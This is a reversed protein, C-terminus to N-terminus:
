LDEVENVEVENVEVEDVKMNQRKEFAEEDRAIAEMAAQAIADKAAAIRAGAAKKKAPTKARNWEREAEILEKQLPAPMESQYFAQLSARARAERAKAAYDTEIKKCKLGPTKAQAKAQCNQYDIKFQRDAFRPVECHCTDWEQPRIKSRHSRAIQDEVEVEVDTEVESDM